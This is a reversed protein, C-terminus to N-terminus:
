RHLLWDVNTHFLGPMQHEQCGMRRYDDLPTATGESHPYDSCFMFVDGSNKTLAKPDEYSFSSVRVQDLFYESPRRSLPAVPKGNLRATFDAAGDLMLLFQPVWASSLEVVGFRLAPHRDLVGHLILDTLALAPPVWLFVAETAPVLDDGDDPYWCDDFVRAQDAVHFVPTVAHDVFASWIREHDPHSLARGDVPGAGIMALRIGAAAITKLEAELWQPDRLTLHAVPHLRGRGEAQVAACWRNWATMNATLAPLSSSLRREWLLGYNPFLVGRGVCADDLWDVRAAPDWYSAPLAEDYRYSPPQGARQRNRHEGCSSTDGPVHVDALALRAGRWSLWTYGLEDDLLSLADDRAGPDIHDAWMSRTEYLHQDSDVVGTVSGTM